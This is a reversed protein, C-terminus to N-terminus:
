RPPRGRLYWLTSIVLWSANVSAPGWKEKLVWGGVIAAVAAHHALLWASRQQRVVPVFRTLVAVSVPYGVALLVNAANM